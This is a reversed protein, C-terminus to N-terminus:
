LGYLERANDGLIRSIVDASPVSRDRLRQLAQLESSTDAHGYDTGAILNRDGAYSLIYPLDDDTQCAVFMRNETMLLRPDLKVGRREARRVYDHLVYPVWQASLEVFGFRLTPFREPLRSSLVNHFATIGPMKFRFFGSDDPVLDHMQFNGNAAHVCIPMNLREAEAYIPDFYSNGPQREAEIGRWFVACAGHDKGFRIEDIAAEITGTPPVVAWRLRTRGQECREALWRNYSRCLLVELQPKTTMPRLFITPFVVQIDTGLEDMHALRAEVDTLERAAKIADTESVPGTSILRGELAWM